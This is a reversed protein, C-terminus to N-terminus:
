FTIRGGFRWLSMCRVGVVAEKVPEAAEPVEPGVRAFVDGCM